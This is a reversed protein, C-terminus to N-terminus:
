SCFLKGKCRAEVAKVEEVAEYVKGADDIAARNCNAQGGLKANYKGEKCFVLAERKSPNKARAGPAGSPEGRKLAYPDTSTIFDAKAPAAEDGEGEAPAAAVKPPAMREAKLVAKALKDTQKEEDKDLDRGNFDVIEAFASPTSAFSALAVGLTLIERRDHSVTARQIPARQTKPALASALQVSVWAICLLRTSVSRARSGTTMTAESQCACPV